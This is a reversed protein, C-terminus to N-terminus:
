ANCHQVWEGFQERYGCLRERPKRCDTEQGANMEDCSPMELISVLFMQWAHGLLGKIAFFEPPPTKLSEMSEASVYDFIGTCAFSLIAKSVM